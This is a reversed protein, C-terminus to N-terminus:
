SQSDRGNILGSDRGFIGDSAVSWPRLLVRQRIGLFVEGRRDRGWALGQTLADVQDEHRGPFVLLQATIEELWDARRPLRVSGGAFLDTQAIVRARKDPDPKYATVNISQERLSQILGRSIPSDEILLTSSGYRPKVEMGKRKLLDFPFRGRVVEMIYFVKQRRQGQRLNWGTPTLRLIPHDEAPHQIEASYNKPNDDIQESRARRQFGLDQHQPLLDDHQSSTPGTPHWKQSDVPDNQTPSAVQKRLGAVRKGDNSGLGHDSPV